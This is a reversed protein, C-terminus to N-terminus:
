HNKQSDRTHVFMIDSFSRLVPQPFMVLRESHMDKWAQLDEEYQRTAKLRHADHRERDEALQRDIEREWTLRDAAVNVSEQTL